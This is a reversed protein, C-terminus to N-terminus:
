EGKSEEQRDSINDIKAELRKLEWACKSVLYVIGIGGIALLADRSAAKALLKRIVEIDLGINEFRKSSYRIYDECSNLKKLIYTAADM